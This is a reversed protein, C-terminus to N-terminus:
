AGGGGQRGACGRQGGRDCRRVAAHWTRPAAGVHRLPTLAQAAIHTCGPRPRHSFGVESTLPTAHLNDGHRATCHYAPMRYEAPIARSADHQAIKVARGSRDCQWGHCGCALRGGECQGKSLKASRHCCRDRLAAPGGHEDLFLVIDKGLLTFPQPGAQLNALPMTAHWFKRFIPQRNVLM